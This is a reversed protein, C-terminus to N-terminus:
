RRGRISTVVSVATLTEWPYFDRGLHDTIRIGRNAVRVPAPLRTGIQGASWLKGILKLSLYLGARRPEPGVQRHGHIRHGSARLLNSVKVPQPSV